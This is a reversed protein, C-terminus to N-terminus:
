SLINPAQMSMYDRLLRISRLLAGISRRHLRGGGLDYVALIQGDTGQPLSICADSPPGCSAPGCSIEMIRDKSIEKLITRRLQRRVHGGAGM